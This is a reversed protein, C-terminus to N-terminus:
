SKSEKDAKALIEFRKTELEDWKSLSLNLERSALERFDERLGSREALDMAHALIAPALDPESAVFDLLLSAFYNRVTPHERSLDTENSKLAVGVKASSISSVAETGPKSRESKWIQEADGRSYERRDIYQTVLARIGDTKVWAPAVFQKIMSCTLDRYTAQELLGLEDITPQGVIMQRVDEECDRGHSQWLNLARARIFSEPHTDRQSAVEREKAFIEDAQELYKRPHVRRVGTVVKVLMAISADLSESALLAGRDCFVEVFLRYLRLSEDFADRSPNEDALANLTDELILFEEDWNTWLLAHSLEHGLLAVLEEHTLSEELPGSLLIHAEGPLCVIYGNARSSNEAQYLQIPFDWKLRSAAAEVAQFTEPHTQSDLRYGHKLIQVRLKERQSERKKRSAFLEWVSPFNARVFELLENLYDPPTLGSLPTRERTM